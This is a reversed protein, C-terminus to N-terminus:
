GKIEKKSDIRRRHVVSYHRLGAPGHSVIVSLLLVCIFISPKYQSLPIFLSLLLIKVVTLVGKLQIIWRWDRTLEWLMLVSGTVMALIWYNLWSAQPVQLLIGGGAGVIGLIHFARLATKAIRQSWFQTESLRNKAM